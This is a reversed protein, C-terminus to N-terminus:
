FGFFEMIHTAPHERMEEEPIGQGIMSEYIEEASARGLINGIPVAIVPMFVRETRIFLKPYESMEIWFSKINEYLYIHSEIKLGKHNLEYHITDPKKVAMFGLLVGGLVILAAFFYNGYILAAASAAFITIGLAWFWDQSKEKEEYELATWELKELADM